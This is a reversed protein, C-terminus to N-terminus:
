LHAKVCASFPVALSLAGSCSALFSIPLMFSNLRILMATTMQQREVTMSRLEVAPLEGAGFQGCHRPGPPCPIEVSFFRGVSHLAVLFMLDFVGIAPRPWEEGM